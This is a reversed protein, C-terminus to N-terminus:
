GNREETIEVVVTAKKIQSHVYYELSFLWVVGAVVAGLAKWYWEGDISDAVLYGIIILMGSM